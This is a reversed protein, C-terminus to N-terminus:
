REGRLSKLGPFLSDEHCIKSSFAIRVLLAKQKSMM